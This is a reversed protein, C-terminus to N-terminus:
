LLSCGPRDSPTPLTPSYTSRGKKRGQGEEGKETETEGARRRAGDGEPVWKISYYMIVFLGILLLGGWGM